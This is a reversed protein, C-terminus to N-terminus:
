EEAVVVLGGVKQEVRETEGSEMEVVLLGHRVDLFKKQLGRERLVEKQLKKRRGEGWIM